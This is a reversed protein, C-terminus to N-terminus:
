PRFTKNVIVLDADISNRKLSAEYRFEIRLIDKPASSLCELFGRLECRTVRIKELIVKEIEIM